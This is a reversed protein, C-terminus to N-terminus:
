IAAMFDEHSVELVRIAERVIRFPVGDKGHVPIPFSKGNDGKFIHHSGSIRDPGRGLVRTLASVVRDGSLGRLGESRRVTRVDFRGEPIEDRAEPETEEAVKAVVEDAVKACVEEAELKEDIAKAIWFDEIDPNKTVLFEHLTVFVVYKLREYDDPTDRMVGREKLPMLTSIFNLEPSSRDLYVDIAGPNKTISLALNGMTKLQKPLVLPESPDLVITAICVMNARTEEYWHDLNDGSFIISSRGGNFNARFPGVRRFESLKLIDEFLVANFEKLTAMDNMLEPPIISFLRKYADPNEGVVKSVHSTHELTTLPDFSVGGTMQCFEADLQALAKGFAKIKWEQGPKESEANVLDLLVIVFKSLLLSSFETLRAGRYTYPVSLSYNSALANIENFIPLVGKSMDIGVIPVTSTFQMKGKATPVTTVKEKDIFSKSLYYPLKTKLHAIISDVIQHMKVRADRFSPLCTMYEAISERDMKELVMLTDAEVFAESLLLEELAKINQEGFLRALHGPCKKLVALEHRIKEEDPNDRPTNSNM